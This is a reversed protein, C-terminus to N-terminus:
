VTVGETDPRAKSGAERVTVTPGSWSPTSKVVVPIVTMAGFPPSTQPMPCVAFMVHDLAPTLPLTFISSDRSPPAVKGSTSKASVALSPESGQGIVPGGALWARMRTLVTSPLAWSVFSASKAM